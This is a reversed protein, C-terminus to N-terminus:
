AALEQLREDAGIRGNVVEDAVYVGGGVSAAARQNRKLGPALGAGVITALGYAENPLDLLNLRRELITQVLTPALYGGFVLAVEEWLDLDMLRQLEKTASM